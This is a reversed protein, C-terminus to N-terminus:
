QGNCSGELLAGSARTSQTRFCLRRCRAHLRPRSTPREEQRRCVGACVGDDLLRKRDADGRRLARYPDRHPQIGHPVPANGPPARRGQPLSPLDADGL